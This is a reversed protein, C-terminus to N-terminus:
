AYGSVSRKQKKQQTRMRMYALVLLFIGLVILASGKVVPNVPIGQTVLYGGYIIALTGLLVLLSEM